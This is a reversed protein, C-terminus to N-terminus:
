RDEYLENINLLKFKVNEYYETKSDHFHGYYWRKIDNNKMLIELMKSVNNRENILDTILNPDYKAYSEVVPGLGFRNDPFVMVPATHTIVIDIDRFTELLPVDLNFIEDKWWTRKSSGYSSQISDEHIRDMRDISHAGGVLLIKKDDVVRTSYDPLLNINTFKFDNLNQWEIDFYHPADHNGRITNLIINRDKLVRDNLLDLELKDGKVKSFGVGFDGVCFIECNEINKSTIEHKLYNFNGHIDGLLIM